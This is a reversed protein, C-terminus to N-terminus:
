SRQSSTLRTVEQRLRYLPVQDWLISTGRFNKHLALLLHGPNIEKAGTRRSEGVMQELVWEACKSLRGSFEGDTDVETLRMALYKVVDDIQVGLNELAAVALSEKDILLAVFIVSSSIREKKFHRAVEEAKPLLNIYTSSGKAIDLDSVARHIESTM